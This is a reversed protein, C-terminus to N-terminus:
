YYHVIALVSMFILSIVKSSLFHVGFIGYYFFFDYVYTVPEVILLFFAFCTYKYTWEVCAKKHVLWFKGGRQMRNTLTYYCFKSSILKKGVSLIRPQDLYFANASLLIYNVLIIIIKDKIPIFVNHSFSFISTVLM